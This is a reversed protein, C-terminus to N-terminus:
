DCCFIIISFTSVILIYRDRFDRKKLNRILMLGMWCMKLFYEKSLQTIKILKKVFKILM